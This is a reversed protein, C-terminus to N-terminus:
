RLWFLIDPYLKIVVIVLAIILTITVLVAVYNPVTFKIKREGKNQIEFMVM